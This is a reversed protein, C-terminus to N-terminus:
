ASERGLPRLRAIFRVRTGHPKAAEWTIRGRLDQILSQVIQTGLGSGGPRFDSPLGAGDDTITVTLLEDGRDDTSRQADVAVTGGGTEALGHEVANQVLESMVMALATADEARLTGFSGTIGSAIPHEVKAVETIAQLGRVAVDDFDVTEDFGASLTEHVLAIVGVRRVAEELAVRGAEGEPLRRAQLRLLAAVTQLNNKVRHHIERITADKTLLELERRRLESVDRLLLLAGVRNGGETLPIARMSVSAGRSTVETRWPARGTVVVALSEDVPSEDRLLDAVVRALLEGIVDGVHGLRHVASLANPSAYSVIGNVDLRIVGDGVRPAGRRQGTPASLNPFEGAAIMRALADALAQYTLELRSPTRMAALNTHRTIVALARGGRVVPIAEERVPMDDRFIPDKERVIRQDLYAQDLLSQRGRHTRRGVVDEFFVMQGTTPRVHAVALWGEIGGPVWLVLDAFSLDSILQWDGVLLQLWEVEAPALDTASQLVENLTPM